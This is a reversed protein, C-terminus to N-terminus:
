FNIASLADTTRPPAGAAWGASTPVMSHAQPRRSNRPLGTPPFYLQDRRWNSAQGGLKGHESDIVMRWWIQKKKEQTWVSHVIGRSYSSSFVHDSVRKREGLEFEKNSDKPTARLSRLDRAFARSWLGSVRGIENEGLNGRRRWETGM